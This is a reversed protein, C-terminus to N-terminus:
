RHPDRVVTGLSTDPRPSCRTERGRITTGAAIPSSTWRLLKWHKLPDDIRAELRATRNRRRGRALVQAPHRRERRTLTRSVRRRRSSANSRSRKRASGMVREVGARNYWSRDFIVIEGGAPFHEIYRQIYIKRSKRDSPARLAVVRFARPSVRETIRKILGGKGATDRGELVIVVRAGTERSGTRFTVCAAVQLKEMEKEYSKRSLKERKATSGASAKPSRKAASGGPSTPASPKSKAPGFPQPTEINM